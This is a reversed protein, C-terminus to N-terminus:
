FQTTKMFLQNSAQMSQGLLLTISPTFKGLRAGVTVYYALDKVIFSEETGTQTVEGSVFWDYNDYELGLGYFEGVDGELRMRNALVPSVADLQAFTVDLSAETFTNRSRGAVVRAKFSEYSTELTLLLTDNGQINGDGVASEYTGAAFQVSYDWDGMYGTYDIRLGDLNTFPV